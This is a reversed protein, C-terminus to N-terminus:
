SQMKCICHSTWDVHPTTTIGFILQSHELGAAKIANSVEDLTKFRDEIANVHKANYLELLSNLSSATRLSVSDIADAGTASLQQQQQRTTAREYAIINNEEEADEDEVEGQEQTEQRKVTEEQEITEDIVPRDDTQQEFVSLSERTITTIEYVADVEVVETKTSLTDEDSALLLAPPSFSAVEEYASLKEKVEDDGHEDKGDNTADSSQQRKNKKERRREAEEREEEEEEKDIPLAAPPPTQALWVLLGILGLLSLLMVFQSSM